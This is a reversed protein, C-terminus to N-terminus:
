NSCVEFVKQLAEDTSASVLDCVSQGVINKAKPDAGSRLLLRSMETQSSQAALMLPTMDFQTRTDPDAGSKLLIETIKLDDREVARILASDGDETRAKPNAGHQLLRVARELNGHQAAEVLQIDLSTAPPSNPVTWDVSQKQAAPATLPAAPKDATAPEKKQAKIVPNPAPQFLREIEGFGKRKAISVPTEGDDNKLHPDAGNLILLNVMEKQGSNAALMLPTVGFPGKQNIHAGASILLTVAQKNGGLVAHSLASIGLSDVSDPSSGDRLLYDLEDLNGSVAASCLQNNIKGFNVAMKELADTSPATNKGDGKIKGWIELAEVSEKSSSAKADAALTIRLPQFILILFCFYLIKYSNVGTKTMALSRLSWGGPCIPPDALFRPSIRRVSEATSQPSSRKARLSSCLPYLIKRIM